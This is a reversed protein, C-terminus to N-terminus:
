IKLEYNIKLGYHLKKQYNTVWTTNIRFSFYPAVLLRSNKWSYIQKQVDLYIDVFIEDKSYFEFFSYDNWENWEWYKNRHESILKILKGGYIGTTLFWNKGNLTFKKQLIVPISLEQFKFRSPGSGSVNSANRGFQYNIGLGLVLKKNLKRKYLLELGPDIPYFYYGHEFGLYSGKPKMYHSLITNFSISQKKEQANLFTTLVVSILCFLFTKKM